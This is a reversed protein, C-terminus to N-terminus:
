PKITKSNRLDPQNARLYGVKLSGNTSVLYKKYSREGGDLIKM